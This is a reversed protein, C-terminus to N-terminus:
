FDMGNNLANLIFMFRLSKRLNDSCTINILLMARADCAALVSIGEFASTIIIPAPIEPIAAALAKFALPYLTSM